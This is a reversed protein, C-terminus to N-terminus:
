KHLDSVFGARTENERAEWVAAIRAVAVYCMQDGDDVLHLVGKEVKVAMGRLSSGGGCNLDLRRGVLKTLLEEM